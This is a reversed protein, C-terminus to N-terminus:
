GLPAVALGCGLAMFAAAATQSWRIPQRRMVWYTGGCVLTSSLLAGGWWIMSSSDQPAELGHLLAHIAIAMAVVAGSLNTLLNPNTTRALRSALLTLAGVGAIAVAALAEAGSISVGSIGILSGLLAGGLAWLLLQSSILSAATGVAMLVLLHDIGLLPHSLGSLAGSAASGHALAPHSGLLVSSGATFAFLPLRFQKM